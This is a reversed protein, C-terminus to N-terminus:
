RVVSTDLWTPFLVRRAAAADEGKALEAGLGSVERPGQPRRM